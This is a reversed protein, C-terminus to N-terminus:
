DQQNSEGTSEDVIDKDKYPPFGGLTRVMKNLARNAAMATARATPRDDDVAEHLSHSDLDQGYFLFVLNQEKESLLDFAKRIDAAHAMWDGSEALSKSSRGTASLANEVKKWDDSLVAPILMKIFDKRYYFIDETSYGEHRAKEKSCYDYAANRLSRAILKDSDKTEFNTTWHKFKKPHEIFWLYLQQKIDEVETFPYKRRYESAIQKVMDAYVTIFTEDVEVKGRM